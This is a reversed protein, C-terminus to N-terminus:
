IRPRLLVQNRGPDTEEGLFTFYSDRCWLLTVLSVSDSLMGSIFCVNSDQPSSTDTHRTPIQSHMQKYTHLYQTDTPMCQTNETSITKHETYKQANRIHQTRTYINPLHMQTYTDVQARYKHRYPEDSNKRLVSAGEVQVLMVLQSLATSVQSGPHSPESAQM